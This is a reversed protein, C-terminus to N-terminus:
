NIEVPSFVCLKNSGSEALLKIVGYQGSYNFAVIKDNSINPMLFEDIQLKKIKNLLPNAFVTEKVPESGLGLFSLDSEQILISGSILCSNEIFNKLGIQDTALPQKDLTLNGNAELKYPKILDSLEKSNFQNAELLAIAKDTKLNLVETKGLFGLIGPKKSKYNTISLYPSSNNNSIAVRVEGMDLTLSGAIQYEKGNGIILKDFAYKNANYVLYLTRVGQAPLKSPNLTQPSIPNDFAAILLGSAPYEAQAVFVASKADDSTYSYPGIKIFEAQSSNLSLSLTLILSFIIKYIQQIM